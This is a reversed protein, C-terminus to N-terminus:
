KIELFRGGIRWFSGSKELPYSAGEKQGVMAEIGNRFQTMGCLAQTTNDADGEIGSALSLSVWKENPEKKESFVSMMEDIKDRTLFVRASFRAFGM